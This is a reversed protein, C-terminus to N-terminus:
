DSQNSAISDIFKELLQYGKAM